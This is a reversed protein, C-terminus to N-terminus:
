GSFRFSGPSLFRAAMAVALEHKRNGRTIEAELLWASASCSFGRSGGDLHLIFNAEEVTADPIPMPKQHQWTRQLEMTYNGLFAAKKNFRRPRWVFADRHLVLAFVLNLCGAFIHPLGNAFLTIFKPLCIRCVM